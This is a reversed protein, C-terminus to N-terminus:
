RSNLFNLKKGQNVILELVKSSIFLQSTVISILITVDSRGLLLEITISHFPVSGSSHLPNRIILSIHLQSYRLRHVSFVIRSSHTLDDTPELNWCNPVLISAKMLVIM